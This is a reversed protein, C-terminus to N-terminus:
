IESCFRQALNEVVIGDSAAFFALVMSIFFREDQSLKAWDGLDKSLDIEEVRWFCDVQKKYMKWIDKYQIPLIVFRNPNEELLPEPLAGQTYQSQSPAAM